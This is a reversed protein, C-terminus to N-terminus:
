AYTLRCVLKGLELLGEDCGRVLDPLDLDVADWHVRGAEVQARIQALGRSCDAMRTEIATEEAFPDLIARQSARGYSGGRSVVTIAQAVASAALLSLGMGILWKCTTM